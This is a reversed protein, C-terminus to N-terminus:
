RPDCRSSMCSVPLPLTWLRPSRAPWLRPLEGDSFATRADLTTVAHPDDVSPVLWRHPQEEVAVISGSVPEVWVDRTNEYHLNM